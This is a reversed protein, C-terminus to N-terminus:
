QRATEDAMENKLHNALGALVDAVIATHSIDRSDVVIDAEALGQEVDGRSFHNEAHLNSPAKEEAETEKDVTAHQATLDAGEKPLGNPWIVPADAELAGVPDVVAPQPEYEVLVAEAGDHAAQERPKQIMRTTIAQAHM